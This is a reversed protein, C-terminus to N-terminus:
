ESRSGCAVFCSFAMHPEQAYFPLGLSTRGKLMSVYKTGYDDPSPSCGKKTAM